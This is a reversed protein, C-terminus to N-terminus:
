PWTPAAATHQLKHCCWISLGSLSALPRVQMRMPVINPESGASVCHSSWQPNKYSSCSNMLFLPRYTQRKTHTTKDAKTNLHHQGQLIMQFHERSKQKQFFKLPIPIRQPKPLIWRHPRRTRPKNSGQCQSSFMRNFEIKQPPPTPPPQPFTGGTAYPLEHGPTLDSGRSYYCQIRLGGSSALSFVPYKVRHAM